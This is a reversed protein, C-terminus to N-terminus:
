TYGINASTVTRLEQEPLDHTSAGSQVVLSSLHNSKLVVMGHQHANLTSGRQTAELSDDFAQISLPNSTAHEFGFVDRIRLARSGRNPLESTSGDNFSGFPSFAIRPTIVQSLISHGEKSQAIRNNLQLRLGEASQSNVTAVSQRYRQINGMFTRDHNKFKNMQREVANVLRVQKDSRQLPQAARMTGGM